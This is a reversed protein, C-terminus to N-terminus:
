LDRSFESAPSNKIRSLKLTICRGSPCARTSRGEGEAAEEGEREEGGERREKRRNRGGDRKKSGEHRHSDTNVPLAGANRERELSEM